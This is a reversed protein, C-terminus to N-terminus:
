ASPDSILPTLANLWSDSVTLPRETGGIINTSVFAYNYSNRYGTSTKLWGARVTCAIALANQRRPLIDKDIDDLFFTFLAGTTADQWESPDLYVWSFRGNPLHSDYKPIHVNLTKHPHSELTPFLVSAGFGASVKQAASCDVKTTPNQTLVATQLNEAYHYRASSEPKNWSVM